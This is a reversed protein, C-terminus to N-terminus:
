PDRTNLTSCVIIISHMGVSAKDVLPSRITCGVIGAMVRLACM